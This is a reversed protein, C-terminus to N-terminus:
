TIIICSLKTYQKQLVDDYRTHFRSDFRFRFQVASSNYCQGEEETARRTISHQRTWSVDSRRWLTRDNAKRWASHIGINVSQVDTDIARPAVGWHGQIPDIRNLTRVHRMGLSASGDRESLVPFQRVAPRSLLLLVLPVSCFALM